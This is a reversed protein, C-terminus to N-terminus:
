ALREVHQKAARLWQYVSESSNVHDRLIIHRNRDGDSGVVVLCECIHAPSGSDLGMATTARVHAASFALM